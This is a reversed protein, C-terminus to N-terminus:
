FSARVGAFVALDSTGYGQVLQYEEDFLNEIRVYAEARDTVEHTFTVNVLTYDDLVPRDGVYKATLAASLKETIEADLGLTVAHGAAVTKWSNFANPALLAAPADGDTYTYSATLRAREHLRFDGVIEIGHRTAEGPAQSYGGLFTVPDSTFNIADDLSFYFATARIASDEGIKKEVGLEINYSEEPQLTPDGQSFPSTSFLEFNSPARYGTAAVARVIVDPRARWVASLRGVTQGGFRSHEDHRLTAAVDVTDGLAHTVEAFVGVVETSATFSGGQSSDEETADVGFVLRTADGVDTAGRYAISRREGAFPFPGGNFISNREADFISAELHHEIGWADFEAFILAAWAERETREDGPTGDGGAGAFEDFHADSDETFASFGLTVGDGVEVEGTASVRNARYGDEETNGLDEDAASFGDTQLHTFTLAFEHRDGKSTVGLSARRTDYSGYELETHLHQGEETARRTRIDIVGGVAESGYQASQSGKLVEIRSLDSTILNGFDLAVQTGSPDTVDIGDVRVAIYNQGVGRISLGTNTGIPGRSQVNVGPLSNFYDSARTEATSKLEAEDAIIVSSASREAEVDEFNASVVIEDLTFADQKVGQALAAVPAVGILLAGIATTTKLM